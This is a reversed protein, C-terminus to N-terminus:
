QQAPAAVPPTYSYIPLKMAEDEFFDVADVKTDLQMPAPAKDNQTYVGAPSRRLPDVYTVHIHFRTFVIRRTNNNDKMRQLLGEAVAPALPLGPITIPGLFAARFAKPLFKVHMSGCPQDDATLITLANVHDIPNRRALTFLNKQFDYRDLELTTIYYFANPYTNGNQRIDDRIAKRAHNWEFDDTYLKQYLDCETIAAYEDLLADDDIDIANFRVLM